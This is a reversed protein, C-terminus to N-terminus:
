SLRPPQRRRIAALGALGLGLLAISTPEPVLAAREVNSRLFEVRLGLPNGGDLAPNGVKFTLTNLGDVFGSNASFDHWSNFTSLDSLDLATGVASIELGNLYAYGGQDVAWRAVFSATSSSFGALDFGISFEYWGTTNPDYSQAANTSPTLWQSVADNALWFPAGFPFTAIGAYPSGHGVYPNVDSTATGTIVNFAYHFDKADTLLANGSNDVGSNFLGSIATASVIPTQAILLAALMARAFNKSIM